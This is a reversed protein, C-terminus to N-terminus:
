AYVAATSTRNQLDDPSEKVKESVYKRDEIM